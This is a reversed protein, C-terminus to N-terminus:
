FIDEAECSPISKEDCYMIRESIPKFEYGESTFISELYLLHDMLFSDVEAMVAKSIERQAARYGELFAEKAIASSKIKKSRIFAEYYAEKMGCIKESQNDKAKRYAMRRRAMGKERENRMIAEIKLERFQEDSIDGLFSMMKSDKM